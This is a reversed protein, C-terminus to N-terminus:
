YVGPRLKTFSFGTNAKEDTGSSAGFVNGQMVVTERSDKKEEFKLLTFENPTTTGGFSAHSLGASSEEFYFYFVVASDGTKINSHNSSVVGIDLSPVTSHHKVEVELFGTGPEAMCMGGSKGQSYVTPELITLRLGDKAKAYMYIGADHSSTPDNPNANVASDRGAASVLPTAPHPNIMARIVSDSVKATKLIKLGAVATDFDTAPTSHIKDMVVDDTLGFGLMEIVDENTM